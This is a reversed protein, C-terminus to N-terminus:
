QTQDHIAYVFLVQTSCITRMVRLRNMPGAENGSARGDPRVQHCM